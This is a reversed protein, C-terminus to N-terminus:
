RPLTSKGVKRAELLAKAAQKFASAQEEERADSQRAILELRSLSRAMKQAEDPTFYHYGESLLCGLKDFIEAFDLQDLQDNDARCHQLMLTISPCYNSSM